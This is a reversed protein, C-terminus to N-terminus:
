PLCIRRRCLPVTVWIVRVGEGRDFVLPEDYLHLLSPLLYEQEGHITEASTVGKALSPATM